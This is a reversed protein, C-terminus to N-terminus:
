KAPFTITFGAGNDSIVNITGRIQKVIMKVMKLGLSNSEELNFDKPLGNGNDKITLILHDRINTTLLVSITGEKRGTFAYKYANSVLENTILGLNIATDMDLETDNIELNNSIEIGPLTYASHLTDMLEKIYKRFNVFTFEETQYLLQHILAISRVRNQSEKFIDKTKKDPILNSQLNLISGIIQLNNKVRHNIEKLLLEREQLMRRENSKIINILYNTTLGIIGSLGLLFIHSVLEEPQKVPYFSLIVFHFVFILILTLSYTTFSFDFVIAASLIIFIYGTVTIGEYGVTLYSILSVAWSLPVVILLGLFRFVKLPIRNLFFLLVSFYVLLSFRIYLPRNRQFIAVHEVYREYEFYLSYGILALICLILAWKYYLKQRNYQIQEM